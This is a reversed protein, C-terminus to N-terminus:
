KFVAHILKYTWPSYIERATNRGQKPWQSMKSDFYLQSVCHKV